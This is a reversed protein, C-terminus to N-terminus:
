EPDWAMNYVPFQRRSGAGLGPTVKLCAASAPPSAAGGARRAVTDGAGLGASADEGGRM